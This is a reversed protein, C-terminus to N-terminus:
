SERRTVSHFRFGKGHSSVRPLLLLGFLNNNYHGKRSKIVKLSIGKDEDTVFPYPNRLLLLSAFRCGELGGLSTEACRVLASM